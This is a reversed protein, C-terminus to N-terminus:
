QHASCALQDGHLVLPAAREDQETLGGFFGDIACYGHHTVTQVVFYRLGVVNDGQVVPATHRGATNADGRPGGHGLGRLDIDANATDTAM